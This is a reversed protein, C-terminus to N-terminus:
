KLKGLVIKSITAQNVGYEEALKQQTVNGASYRQCIERKKQSSLKYSPHDKGRAVRKRGKAIMDAVNESQTGLFLHDPKVCSPNDCKHLICGGEPIPGFELEYVVRHVLKTARSGDTRSGTNIVGYGFPQKYGIWVWCEASKDVKGWIRKSLNTNM